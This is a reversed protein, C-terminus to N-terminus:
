CASKRPPVSDFEPQVSWSNSLYCCIELLETLIVPCLCATWVVLPFRGEGMWELTCGWVAKDEKLLSKLVQCMCVCMVMVGGGCCFLLGTLAHNQLDRQCWLCVYLFVLPSLSQLIQPKGELFCLSLQREQLFGPSLSEPQLKRM